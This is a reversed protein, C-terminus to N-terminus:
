GPRFGCRVGAMLPGGDAGTRRGPFAWPRGENWINWVVARLARCRAAILNRSAKRGQILPNRAGRFVERWLCEQLNNRQLINGVLLCHM